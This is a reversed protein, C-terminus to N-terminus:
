TAPVSLNKSRRWSAKLVIKLGHKDVRAANCRAVRTKLVRGPKLLIIAHASLGLESGLANQVCQFIEDRDGSRVAARNLEQLVILREKGEVEASFVAAGGLVFGAHSEQVIQEADQPYYNRGRIIILDSLRGTVFLEDGNLYGLDGTRFFSGHGKDPHRVGFAAKTEDPRNWYGQAISPGQVWIEGVSKEPCISLSEPNVILVQTDIGPSGCSAIPKDGANPNTEDTFRDYDVPRGTLQATVCLTAEAMGYTAVFARPSFGFPKFKTEFQDLAKKRIPEAGCFAVKWNSLDISVLDASEIKSVCHEFGFNPCGSHTVRHRAIMKLWLSPTRVFNSPSFLICHCGCYISQLVNGILGMDHFMPLWGGIRSDSTVDFARRIMELNHLLNGHTIVVGKPTSTSGSTYQLFAIRDASIEPKTLLLPPLGDADQLVRWNAGFRRLSGGEGSGVNRISETSLILSHQADNLISELRALNRNRSPPNVPVAIVGAYMCALFAVVFDLCNPYMLVVRDGM